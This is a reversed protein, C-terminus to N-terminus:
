LNLAVVKAMHTPTYFIQREEGAMSINIIYFDGQREEVEEPAIENKSVRTATEFIKNLDKGGHKMLAHCNPCLCLLNFEMNSWAHINRTEAIRYIDFYPRRNAGLNLITNCIQCHGGYQEFLFEKPDIGGVIESKKTFKIDQKLENNKLKDLFEDGYNKRMDDEEEPNLGRWIGDSIVESESSKNTELSDKVKDFINMASVAVGEEINQEKIKQAYEAVKAMENPSLNSLIEMAKKKNEPLQALLEQEMDQKFSLPIAVFKAELSEKDFGEPLDALMIESPIHFIGNKDPLWSNKVLLEGMRSFQPKKISGIYEKRSSSEIIGCINNHFKKVVDWIIQSRKLNINQLAYGLGDITCEPDFRNLGRGHSGRYNAIVVHGQRDPIRCKVEIEDKCGIQEFLVEDYMGTYHEDLFWIDGNGEFYLNLESTKTFVEGLYIECPKKYDRRSNGPNVAMLFPTVRLRNLLRDKSEQISCARLTELIYKVDQENKEANIEESINGYKPLVNCIIDDVVDPERLGLERLFKEAREDTVISKKVTVFHTENRSPLYIQTGGFPQSHKDDNLRIIPKSRLIGANQWPYGERWLREQGLLFGYFQKVWDDSQAKIFDETFERAFKEPDVESVNLEKMLYDRLVPTKDQTINEDLWKVGKKKFLLDLQESGLLVLMSEKARVILAKASNVYGGDHTPLLAEESLFREKVHNYMCCFITNEVTNYESEIPLTNLFGVNLLNMEKVKSISESILIATEKLLRTNTEDDLIINDRAPTLKYPGQILFKLYTDKDTLFFSVMKAGNFPVIHNDVICFAVEVKTDNDNLVFPKEFVLWEEKNKDGSDLDKNRLLEVKRVHEGIPYSKRSYYGSEGMIEWKIESLNRLFLLNRFDLNLLRKKIRAFSDETSIKEHNFPLIFLTDGIDINNKQHLLCPYVYDKVTFSWNGSYVEPSKTFAYVSKFGIGFKGIQSSDEEKTGEAINCIGRVDDEDFLIGNHRVELRDKFLCFHVVFKDEKGAKKARECADEANQLLEYIFHTKDNYLNALLPPGYNTIKTGYGAINETRIREYIDSM